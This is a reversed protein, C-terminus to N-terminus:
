QWIFFSQNGWVGCSESHTFISRRVILDWSKGVMTKGQRVPLATEPSVKCCVQGDAQQCSRGSRGASARQVATAASGLLVAERCVFFLLHCCSGTFVADSHCSSFHTDPGGAIVLQGEWRCTLHWVNTFPPRRKSLVSLLPSIAVKRFLCVGQFLAPVTCLWVVWASQHRSGTLPLRTGCDWWCICM